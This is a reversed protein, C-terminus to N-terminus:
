LLIAYYWGRKLDEAFFLNYAIQQSWIALLFYACSTFFLLGSFVIPELNFTICYISPEQLIINYHSDEFERRILSTWLLPHFSCRWSHLVLNRSPSHPVTCQYSMVNHVWFVSGFAWNRPACYCWHIFVRTYIQAIASNAISSADDALHLAVECQLSMETNM